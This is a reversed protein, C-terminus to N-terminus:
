LREGKDGEGKGGEGKGGKDKCQLIYKLLICRLLYAWTRAAESNNEDPEVIRKYNKM